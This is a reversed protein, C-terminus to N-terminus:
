YSLKVLGSGNQSIYIYGDRSIAIGNPSATIQSYKDTTVNTFSKDTAPNRMVFLAADVANKADQQQALWLSGDPSIQLPGPRKILSQGSHKTIDTINPNTIRDFIETDANNLRYVKFGTRIPSGRDGQISIYLTTPNKDDAAIFGTNFFAKNRLKMSPWMNSWSQGGDSSRYLGASLDLLYVVGSRTNDPWVFKSRKTAGIKVGTSKIWRGNHFRFVGEGEVAALVTQSTTAKGNHYGSAVARVRGNNASTVASLKTNTWIAASATALKDASKIYVEGGGPSNTDRDGVGLIIQNSTKDFLIDYGKSEAGQPKDRVINNNEFRSQSALVVFDTNAIVVQKHNNPNVAVGNNATVQMNNVAPAWQRGGTDSKWIGGRGSIYIIDDSVDNALSGRSVAISSVVSNTRGIGAQQFANTRFWWDSNQGYITDSVNDNANILAVWSAGGNDTRWLNSYNRGKARGGLNTTGAYVVDQKNATYGTVATWQRYPNDTSLGTNQLQWRQGDFKVIGQAGLAGYVHGNSLVTLGEPRLASYVLTSSPANVNAYNIRYIGNKDSNAFQIAAYAINPVAPSRAVSRVFGSTNVASAEKDGGSILIRVGNSYTGAIVIDDTYSTINNGEDVVILDGNPRPHGKPVPDGKNSHNGAFLAKAGGRTMTWSNGGDSSRFLGGSKGKDGIGAYIIQANDPTIALSAVKYSTLGNNRTEFRLGGDISKLVGSVDASSYVTQGDDSITVDSQFGGGSVATDEVKISYTQAALLTPILLLLFSCFSPLSHM